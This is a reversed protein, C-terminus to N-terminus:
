INCEKYVSSDIGEGASFELIVAGDDRIEYVVEKSEGGLTISITNLSTYAWKAKITGSQTQISISDESNFSYIDDSKEDCLLIGIPLEQGAQVTRPEHSNTEELIEGCFYYSSKFGENDVTYLVDNKLEAAIEITEFQDSIFINSSNASWKAESSSLREGSRVDSTNIELKGSKYFSFSLSSTGSSENSYTETECYIKGELSETLDAKKKGAGGSSGSNCSTLILVAAIISVLIRM